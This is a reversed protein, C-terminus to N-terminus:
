MVQADQFCASVVVDIAMEDAGSVPGNVMSVIEGFAKFLVDNGLAGHFSFQGEMDVGTPLFVATTAANRGTRMAEVFELVGTVEVKQGNGGQGFFFGQLGFGAMHISTFM